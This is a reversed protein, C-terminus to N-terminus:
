GAICSSAACFPLAFDILDDAAARVSNPHVDGSPTDLNANLERCSMWIIVGLVECGLRGSVKQTSRSLVGIPGASM